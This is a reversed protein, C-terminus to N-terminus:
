KSTDNKIEKEKIENIEDFNLEVQRNQFYSSVPSTGRVSRKNAFEDLTKLGEQRNSSYLQNINCGGIGSKNIRGSLEEQSYDLGYDKIMATTDVGLSKSLSDGCCCRDTTLWRLDNDAISYSLGLEKMRKILPKYLQMRKAPALALLGKQKFERRDINLLSTMREVYDVDQPVLKIGEITIHDANDFMEVIRVDSIKPIFPQIRIGVKFGQKKLSDFWQKRTKIDPVNKEIHNINEASSVSFHLTHLNPNLKVNYSTNSKTSFLIKVNYKNTIDIIQETIKFKKEFVCFPDSMGGFHWTIRKNILNDLINKEGVVKDIFIKKLKREVFKVDAVQVNDNGMIVRKTAFCYECRFTCERYSDVRLPQGCILIKSSVNLPNFKDM